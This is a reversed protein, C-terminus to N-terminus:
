IGKYRGLTFGRLSKEALEKLMRMEMARKKEFTIEHNFYGLIVASLNASFPNREYQTAIKQATLIGNGQMGFERKGEELLIDEHYYFLTAVVLGIISPDTREMQRVRELRSLHPFLDEIYKGDFEDVYVKLGQAKIQQVMDHLGAFELCGPIAIHPVRTEYIPIVMKDWSTRIKVGTLINGTADDYRQEM